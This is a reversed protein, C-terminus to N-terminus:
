LIGDRNRATETLVVIVGGSGFLVVLVSFLEDVIPIDRSSKSSGARRIRM